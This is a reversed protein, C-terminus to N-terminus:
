RDRHDDRSRHSRGPENPGRQNLAALLRCVHDQQAALDHVAIDLEDELSIDDFDMHNRRKNNMVRVKLGPSLARTMTLAAARHPCVMSAPARETM